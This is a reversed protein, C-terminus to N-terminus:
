IHFSRSYLFHHVCNEGPLAFPVSALLASQQPINAKAAEIKRLQCQADLACHPPFQIKVGRFHARNHSHRINQIKKFIGAAGSLNTSSFVTTRSPHSVVQLASRSENRAPRAPWISAPIEWGTAM